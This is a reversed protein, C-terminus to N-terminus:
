RKEISGFTRPWVGSRELRKPLRGRAAIAADRDPYDGAVLSYWPKGKLDREFIAYPQEIGFDRVFKQVASRDRSGVLQLTYRGPPRSSLWPSGQAPAPDATVAAAGAKVVSPKPPSAAQRSEVPAGGVPTVPERREVVAEPTPSTPPTKKAAPEAVPPSVEVAPPKEEVTVPVALAPPPVPTEAAPKAAPKAEVTADAAPDPGGGTEAAALADRMVADLPDEEAGAVFPEVAATTVEGPSHDVGAGQAIQEPGTAPPQVPSAVPEDPTKGLESIPMDPMLASVAEAKLNEAPVAQDDPLPEVLVVPPPQKLGDRPSFLANVQDQLLLVTALIVLVLGGLAWAWIPRKPSNAFGPVSQQTRRTGGSSDLVGKLADILPGPLGGSARHLGAALDETFRAAQEGAQSRLFAATQAPEFPPLDVFQVDWNGSTLALGGQGVLLLKGGRAHLGALSEVAELGLRDADDVIVLLDQGDLGALVAEPWPSADDPPLGLQDVAVAAVDCDESARVWVTAMLDGLADFLRQAFLTKGAGEPARLYVVEGANRVLHLLLQM